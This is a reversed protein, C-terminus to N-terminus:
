VTAQCARPSRDSAYIWKFIPRVHPCRTYSPGFPPFPDWRGEISLQSDLFRSDRRVTPVHKLSLLARGVPLSPDPIYVDMAFHILIPDHLAPHRATFLYTPVHSLKRQIGSQTEMWHTTIHVVSSASPADESRTASAVTRTTKLSADVIHGYITQLTHAVATKPFPLLPSAVPGFFRRGLCSRCTFLSDVTDAFIRQCMIISSLARLLLRDQPIIRYRRLPHSIHSLVDGAAEPVVQRGM